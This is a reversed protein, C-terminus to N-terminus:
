LMRFFGLASSEEGARVARGFVRISFARWLEFAILDIYAGRRLDVLGGAGAGHECGECRATERRGDAAPSNGGALSLAGPNADGFFRTAIVVSGAGAAVPRAVVVVLFREIGSEGGAPTADTLRAFVTREGGGGRLRADGAWGGGGGEGAGMGGLGDLACSNLGYAGPATGDAAAAPGGFGTGRPIKMGFRRYGRRGAAGEM